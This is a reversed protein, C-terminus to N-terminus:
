GRNWPDIYVDDIQPDGLVTTLELSVKATGGSLLGLLPSETLLVPTPSVIAIPRWDVVVDTVLQDISPGCASNPTTM